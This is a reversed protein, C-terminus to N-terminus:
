PRKWLNPKSAMTAKHIMNNTTALMRKKEEVAKRSELLRRRMDESTGHLQQAAARLRGFTTASKVVFADQGRVVRVVVEGEQRAFLALEPYFKRAALAASRRALSARREAQFHVRPVARRNDRPYEHCSM